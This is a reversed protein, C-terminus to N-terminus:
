YKVVLPLEPRLDKTKGRTAGDFTLELVWEKASQVAM